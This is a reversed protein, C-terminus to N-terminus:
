RRTIPDNENLGTLWIKQETACYPCTIILSKAGPAHPQAIGGGPGVHGTEDWAFTKAPATCKPNVCRIRIM